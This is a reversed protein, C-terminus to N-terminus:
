PHGRLEDDGIIAYLDEHHLELRGCASARRQAGHVLVALDRGSKGRTRRALGAAVVEPDFGAVREAKSLALCLIRARDAEDPLGIEFEAGLRRRIMDDVRGADYTEGVVLVRGDGAAMSDDWAQVFAMLRETAFADAERSGRCPFIGECWDLHIVCRGFARARAWVERIRPGSQGVYGGNLDGMLLTMLEAGASVAIRRAIETKGTGAWGHLLMGRAGSDGANFRVIQQLIRTKQSAPLVIESWLATLDVATNKRKDSRTDTNM